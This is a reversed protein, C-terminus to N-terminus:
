CFYCKNTGSKANFLAGCNPCKELCFDHELSIKTRTFESYSLGQEFKVANQPCSSVCIRCGACRGPFFKLTEQKLKIAGTPCLKECRHCYTCRNEKLKPASYIIINEDIKLTKNKASIGCVLQLLEQPSIIEECNQDRFFKKRLEEKGMKTIDTIVEESKQVLNSFIERRNLKKNTRDINESLESKCKVESVEEGTAIYHEFNLFINEMFLIQNKIWPEIFNINKCGIDKCDAFPLHLKSELAPPILFQGLSFSGPCGTLIARSTEAKKLKKCVPQLVRRSKAAQMLKKNIDTWDLEKFNLAAAPCLSVCLGCGQCNDSTEPLNNKGLNLNGRPCIRVCGQCCLFNREANLCRSTKIEVEEPLVKKSLLKFIYKNLMKIM